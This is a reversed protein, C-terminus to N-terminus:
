RNLWDYLDTETRIIEDTARGGIISVRQPGALLVQRRGDEAAGLAGRMLYVGSIPDLEPWATPCTVHHAIVTDLLKLVADQPRGLGAANQKHEVLRLAARSANYKYVYLDIDGATFTHPLRHVIQGLASSSEWRQRHDRHIAEQGCKPCKFRPCGM